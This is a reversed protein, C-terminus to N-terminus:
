AGDPVPHHSLGVRNGEPDRLYITFRTQHYVAVGARALREKWGGREEVGIRLAILHFGDAVGDAAQDGDAVIRELALFSGDGTDVWISREAVGDDAPWRQLVPLGLVGCYFQEAAALDRVRIALHHLGRAAIM